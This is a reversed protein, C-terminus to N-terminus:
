APPRPLHKEVARMLTEYRFPKSMVHVVGLGRVEEQPRIGGTMAIVPIDAVARLQRQAARFEAGNMVPMMLDLLILDPRAGALLYDIAERGNAVGVTIYGEDLLAEVLVRRISDDDEVVLIAARSAM